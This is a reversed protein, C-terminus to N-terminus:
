NSKKWRTTDVLKQLQEELQTLQEPAGVYDMITKTEGEETFSIYRTPLDSVQKTSYSDKLESFQIRHFENILAKYAKRTLRASFNGEGPKQYKVSTLQMKRNKYIELKYVPCSGFCPTKEFAIVPTKQAYSTLSSTILLLFSTTIIKIMDPILM